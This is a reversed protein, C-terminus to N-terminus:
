KADEINVYDGSTSMLSIWGDKYVTYSCFKVEEGSEKTFSGKKRIQEAKAKNTM